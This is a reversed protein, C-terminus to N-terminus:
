VCVCPYRSLSIDDERTVVMASFLKIGYRGTGHCRARPKYRSRTTRKSSYVWSVITRKIQYIRVRYCGEMLRVDVVVYVAILLFRDDDVCISVICDIM